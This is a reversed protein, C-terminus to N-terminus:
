PKDYRTKIKLGKPNGEIHVRVLHDIIPNTFSMLNDLYMDEIKRSGRSSSDILLALLIYCEDIVDDSMNGSCKFIIERLVWVLINHKAKDRILINFENVGYGMETGISSYSRHIM